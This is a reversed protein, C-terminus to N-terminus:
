PLGPCVDGDEDTLQRQLMQVEDHIHPGSVSMPLGAMAALM